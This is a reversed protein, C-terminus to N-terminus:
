GSRPLDNRAGFRGSFYDRIAQIMVSRMNRRSRWKPRFTWSALTRAYDFLLTYMWAWLGYGALQMFLLRNRTMYYHVQPSAARAEPSIKHWVKSSPVHYIKFGASRVRSCWEVEEYYLFFRPDLMGVQAVVSMRALLACGTVFDVTRCGAHFLNRDTEDIGVMRARGNRRDIIGGASWIRDPDDFYYITPGLMAISSDSEAVRILEDLFDPAVETDNNLLLTYDVGLSQAYRLGLNNGEAFGSNEQNRLINLSPHRARIASVSSPDSGNDVLLIEFNSYELKELSQLCALTDLEGNFNIVLILVTPQM